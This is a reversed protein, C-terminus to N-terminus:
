NTLLPFIMLMFLIITITQRNILDVLAKALKSPDTEKMFVSM